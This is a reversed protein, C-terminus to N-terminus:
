SVSQVCLGSWACGIVYSRLFVSQGIVEDLVIVDTEFMMYDVLDNATTTLVGVNATGDTGKVLSEDFM